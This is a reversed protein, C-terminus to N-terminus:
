PAECRTCTKLKPEFSKLKNKADTDYSIAAIRTQNRVRVDGPLETVKSTGDPLQETVVLVYTVDACSEDTNAAVGFTYKTKVEGSQTNNLGATLSVKCTKDGSAAQVGAGRAAAVILLAATLIAATRRQSM